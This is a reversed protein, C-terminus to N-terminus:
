LSAGVPPHGAIVPYLCGCAPCFSVLARPRAVLSIADLLPQLGPMPSRRNEACLDAVSLERRLGSCERHVCAARLAERPTPRGEGTM